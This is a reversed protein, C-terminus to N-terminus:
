PVLEQLHDQIHFRGGRREVLGQLMLHDLMEQADDTTVGAAMAASACVIGRSGICANLVAAQEPSLTVGIKQKWYSDSADVVPRWDLTLTFTNAERDSEFAPPRRREQRWARGIERLGSGALEAFGILRLARAILPNRAQSKGGDALRDDSVRSYGTNFLVARDPEIQVQAPASNDDYDQHIFQNVLAERVAIYDASGTISNLDDTSIPEQGIHRSFFGVSSILAQLVNSDISERESWRGEGDDRVRLDVVGRRLERYVAPDTGFLLILQRAEQPDVHTRGALLVDSIADKASQGGETGLKPAYWELTQGDMEAWPVGGEARLWQEEMASVREGWERALHRGDRLSSRQAPRRSGAMLGNLAERRVGNLTKANAQVSRYRLDSGKIADVLFVRYNDHEEAIEWLVCPSLQILRDGVAVYPTNLTAPDIGSTLQVEEPVPDASEGMLMLRIANAGDPHWDLKEIAFLPLRLLGRVGRLATALLREPDDRSLTTQASATTLGTLNHGLTNRLRILSVLASDTPPELSKSRFGAHLYQAVPHIVDSAAIQQAIRLFDGFALNGSLPTLAITADTERTAYSALAVSALYRALVEAAKLCHEVREADSRSRVLRGCAVAIPSAYVNSAREIEQYDDQPQEAPM